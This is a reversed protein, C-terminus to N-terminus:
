QDKTLLFWRDGTSIDFISRHSVIVTGVVYDIIDFINKDNSHKWHGLMM